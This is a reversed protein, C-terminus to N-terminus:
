NNHLNNLYLKIDSCVKQFEGDCRLIKKNRLILDKNEEVLLKAYNFSGSACHSKLLNIIVNVRDPEVTLAKELIKIAEVYQGMRFLAYGKYDLARANNPYINLAKDYEIVASKFDKKLRYSM